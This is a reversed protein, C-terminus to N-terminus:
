ESYHLLIKELQEVLARAEDQTLIHEVRPRDNTQIVVHGIGDIMEGYAKM